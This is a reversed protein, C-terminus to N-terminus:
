ITDCVCKSFQQNAGCAIYLEVWYTYIYPTNYIFTHKIHVHTHACERFLCNLQQIHRIHTNSWNENDYTVCMAHHCSQTTDHLENPRRIVHVQRSTTHIPETNQSTHIFSHARPPQSPFCVVHNVCTRMHTWYIYSTEPFTNTCITQPINICFIIYLCM